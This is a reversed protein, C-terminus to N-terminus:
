NKDMAEKDGFGDINHPMNEHSMSNTWFHGLFSYLNQSIIEVFLWRAVAVLMSM